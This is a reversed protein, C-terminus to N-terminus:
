DSQWPVPLVDRGALTPSGEPNRGPTLLLPTAGRAKGKAFTHDRAEAWCVKAERRKAEPPKVLQRWLAAGIATRAVADSGRM